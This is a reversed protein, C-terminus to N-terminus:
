RLLDIQTSHHYRLWAGSAVHQELTGAAALVLTWIEEARRRAGHSAECGTRSTPFDSTTPHNSCPLTYPTCRHRLAEVHKNTMWFLNTIHIPTGSAHKLLISSRHPQMWPKPPTSDDLASGGQEGKSRWKREERAEVLFSDTTSSFYRMEM